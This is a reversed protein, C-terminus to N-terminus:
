KHHSPFPAFFKPLTCFRGVHANGFSYEAQSLNWFTNTSTVQPTCNLNAMVTLSLTYSFRRVRMGWMSDFIICRHPFANLCM